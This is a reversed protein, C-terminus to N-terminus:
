GNVLVCGSLQCVLYRNACGLLSNPGAAHGLSAIDIVEVRTWRSWDLPRRFAAATTATLATALAIGATYLRRAFWAELPRVLAPAAIWLAWVQVVVCGDFRILCLQTRTEVLSAFSPETGTADPSLCPRCRRWGLTRMGRNLALGLLVGGFPGFVFEEAIVSLLVFTAGVDSIGYM